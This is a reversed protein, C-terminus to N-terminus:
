FSIFSVIDSNDWQIEDAPITLVIVLPYLARPREGLELVSGEGTPYFLDTNRCAEHRFHANHQQQGVRKM